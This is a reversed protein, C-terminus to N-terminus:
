VNILAGLASVFHLIRESALTYGSAHDCVQLQYKHRHLQVIDPVDQDVELDTQTFTSSLFVVGTSRQLSGFIVTSSSLPDTVMEALVATLAM